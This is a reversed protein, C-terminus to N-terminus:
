AILRGLLELWPASRGDFPPAKQTVARHVLDSTATALEVIEPPYGYAVRHEEFEDEDDVFVTRDLAEIVDLDLDVARM